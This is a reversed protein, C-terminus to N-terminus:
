NFKVVENIELLHLLVEVCQTQVALSLSGVGARM